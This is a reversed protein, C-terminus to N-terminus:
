RIDQCQSIIAFLGIKDIIVFNHIGGGPPYVLPAFEIGGHQFFIRCFIHYFFVVTNKRIGYRRGDTLVNRRCKTIRKIVVREYKRPELGIMGKIFDPKTKKIVFSLYLRKFVKCFINLCYM